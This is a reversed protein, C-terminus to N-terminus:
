LVANVNNRKGIKLKRLNHVLTKNESVATEWM